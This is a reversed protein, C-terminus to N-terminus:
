VVRKRRNLQADITVATLIVLGIVMEHWYASVGLLVLGNRVMSIIAAGLFTGLITGSGGMLATGGIVVAAIVDLELGGGTLPSVSNLHSLSLMGAFGALTGVIIFNIIKIRDTNIGSLRAAKPNSGTIYVKYGYVSRSLIVAAIILLGAMWFTQAPIKGFAEGSFLSGFASPPLNSIPWGQSFVLALGRLVSLMGLTVIFSPIGVKTTLLGNILGALAGVVIGAFVAIWINVGFNKVMLATVIGTLGLISGVSLDFERTIILFTMGVGIIAVLSMQKSVSLLNTATFFNPTAISLTIILIILAILVGIEKLSFIKRFVGAFKNTNKMNNDSSDVVMQKTKDFKEM